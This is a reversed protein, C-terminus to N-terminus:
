KPYQDLSAFLLHCNATCKAVNTFDRCVASLSMYSMASAQHVCLQGCCCPWLMVSVVLFTFLFGDLIPNPILYGCIALFHPPKAKWYTSIHGDWGLFTGSGGGHEWLPFHASPSPM